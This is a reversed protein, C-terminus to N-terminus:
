TFAEYKSRNKEAALQFPVHETSWSLIIRFKKLTEKVPDVDSFM